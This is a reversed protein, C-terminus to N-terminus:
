GRWGACRGSRSMTGSFCRNCSRGPSTVAALMGALDAAIQAATTGTTTIETSGNLISAPNNGASLAITPTLIQTDIGKGLGGLVTRNIVPVAAPDSTTVLEESLPTIVGYKYFEQTSAAFATKQVPV